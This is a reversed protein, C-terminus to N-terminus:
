IAKRIGRNRKQGTKTVTKTKDVPKAERSLRCRYITKCETKTDRKGHYSWVNDVYPWYTEFEEASLYVPEELHFLRLRMSDLEAPLESPM